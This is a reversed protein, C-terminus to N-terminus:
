EFQKMVDAKHEICTRVLTIFNGKSNSLLNDSRTIIYIDSLLDIIKKHPNISSDYHLSYSEAETNYTTWNYIPLGTSKFFEVTHKDDTAIYISKYSHILAKNEEYLKKYDSKSDTNRVQICLYPTPILAHREKCAARVLPALTLEKFIKYGYGGGCAPYVIIKESCAVTPLKILNGAYTYGSM